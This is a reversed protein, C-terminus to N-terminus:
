PGNYSTVLDIGSVGIYGYNTTTVDDEITLRLSKGRHAALPWSVPVKVADDNNASVSYVTSTGDRLVVRATRGGCVNFRLAVADNPVVFSQSLSGKSASGFAAGSLTWVYTTVSRRRGYSPVGSSMVDATTSYNFDDYITFHAGDGTTEWGAFGEAFQANVIGADPQRVVDFGTTTVYGWEGSDLEDEIALVLLQGRRSVLEWSVPVHISNSDLGNCSQLVKGAADKLRVQARGGFVNFRLASADMPVMFAQSVSGRAASGGTAAANTSLTIRESSSSQPGLAFRAADGTLTWGTLGRSFDGNILASHVCTGNRCVAADGCATGDSGTKGCDTKAATACSRDPRPEGTDECSPMGNRCVIRYQTCDGARSCDTGAGCSSCSGAACRGNSYCATDDAANESVPEGDTCRQVHCPNGDGGPKDAPDPESRTTGDAACVLRKCDGVLQQGANPESGEDKQHRVCRGAECRVEECPSGAGCDRSSDCEPASAQAVSGGAAAGADRETTGADREPAGADREPSSGASPRAIPTCGCLREALMCALAMALWRDGRWSAVM